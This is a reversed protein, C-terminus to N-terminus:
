GGASTRRIPLEAIRRRLTAPAWRRVAAALDDGDDPEDGEDAGHGNSAPGDGNTPADAAPGPAAEPAAEPEHEAGTDDATRRTTIAPLDAIRRRLMTAKAWRRKGAAAADDDLPEHDDGGGPASAGGRASGGTRARRTTVAAPLRDIPSEPQRGAALDDLYAATAEYARAILTASHTFDNFRVRPTEGTPLVHVEVDPPLAEIERKFRHHRAVWYAQVAMDLPRRPDRRARLFSGVQLIYITAAGREVARSMPVDNVIGGDLYRVGDIEVPPYIAPLAASALLPEILPGSDFWVEQVNGIDTAVCEFPIALEEFTTAPLHEEAMARLAALDHVAEGRRALSVANSWGSPLVDRRDLGLWLEELDDLRELTPEHAFGAGNIAGVSCGVVLDPTVGHELLARLMGLQLAGLNGGGSLVFAIPRRGWASAASARPGPTPPRPATAM